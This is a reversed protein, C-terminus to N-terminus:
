ARQKAKQTKGKIRTSKDLTENRKSETGRTPRDDMMTIDGAIEPRM